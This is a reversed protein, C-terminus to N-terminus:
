RAERRDVLVGDPDFAQKVRATLRDIASTQPPFPRAHTSGRRVLTAHGGLREALPRVLRDTTESGQAWVLGGAWDILCRADAEAAGACFRAAEAPPLIVRWLSGPGRLVAGERLDRWLQADSPAPAGFDSLLSRLGDARAAVSPGFGELRLATLAVGDAQTWGPLHAAGSVETPSRLAAGMAAVARDEDLGRLALTLTERGAPLVKLTVETMVALAGWSGAMLKSLDFGTVNKVVKGGAKFTEGAGTVAVFGLLHDRVSGHSVRRPGAAAAAITGGLTSRGAPGGLMPGYDMPEFALMQGSDRLLAEIEIVSTGARATLVLEAPDYDIVGNLATLDLLDHESRWAGYAAKSGGGRAELRRGDARAAGIVDALEAATSVAFVTM